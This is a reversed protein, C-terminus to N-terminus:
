VVTLLVLIDSIGSSIYPKTFDITIELCVFQREQNAQDPNEQGIFRANVILERYDDIQIQLAKM